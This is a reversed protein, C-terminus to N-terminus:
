VTTLTMYKLRSFYSLNRISLYSFCVLFFSKKRLIEKDNLNLESIQRINHNLYHNKLNEPVSVIDSKSVAEKKISPYSQAPYSTSHNYGFAAQINPNMTFIDTVESSAKTSKKKSYNYFTGGSLTHRFLHYNSFTIAIDQGPSQLNSHISAHRLIGNYSEFKKTAFLTANGYHEISQALHDLTHFKPKNIWQALSNIIHYLFINICIKLQALYEDMDAIHTQFVLAALHCLAHWINRKSADMFQFFLFPAAQVIVKFDKGVLSSSYRVLGVPKLSPINLSDVNFSQWLGVLEEKQPHKLSNMFNRFQYKVVGLLFVHLIEVPANKTGDFGSPITPLILKSEFCPFDL